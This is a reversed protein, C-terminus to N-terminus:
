MLHEEHSAGPTIVLPGRSIVIDMWYAESSDSNDCSFQNFNFTVTSVYRIVIGINTDHLDVLIFITKKLDFRVIVSLNSHATHVTITTTTERHIGSTVSAVCLCTGASYADHCELILLLDHAVDSIM